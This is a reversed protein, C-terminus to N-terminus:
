KHNKIFNLFNDANFYKSTTTNYYGDGYKTALYSQFEYILDQLFKLFDVNTEPM